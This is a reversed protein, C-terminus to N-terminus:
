FPLSKMIISYIALAAIGTIVGTMWVYMLTLWQWETKQPGSGARRTMGVFQHAQVNKVAAVVTQLDESELLVDIKHKDHYSLRYTKADPEMTICHALDLWLQPPMGVDTKLDPWDVTGVLDRLHALRLYGAGNVKLLAELHASSADRAQRLTEASIKEDIGM